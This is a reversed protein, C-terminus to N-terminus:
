MAVDDADPEVTFFRRGTGLFFTEPVEVEGEGEVVSVSTGTVVEAGAFFRTTRLFTAGAFVAGRLATTFGAGAFFVTAALFFVEAVEL